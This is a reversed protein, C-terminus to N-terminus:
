PCSLGCISPVLSACNSDWAVVCCFPDLSCISAVCPDCTSDLPEGTGCPAHACSPGCAEQDALPISQAFQSVICELCAETIEGAALAPNAAQAATKVYKGHTKYPPNTENGVAQQVEQQVTGCEATGVDGSAQARVQPAILWCLGICVLALIKKM